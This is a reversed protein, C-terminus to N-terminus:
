IEQLQKKIAQLESLALAKYDIDKALQAIQAQLESFLENGININALKNAMQKCHEKIDSRTTKQLSQIFEQAEELFREASYDKLTGSGSPLPKDSYTMDPFQLANIIGRLISRLKNINIDDDSGGNQEVSERLTRILNGNLEAKFSRISKHGMDRISNEVMAVLDDLSSRVAGARVTTYTRTETRSSGWTWPKIWKSTSVECTETETGEADNTANRAKSFYQALENHLANELENIFDRRLDEFCEDIDSIANDKLRAIQKQQQKLQEVDTEEIEKIHDSVNQILDSAYKDINVAKQALFSEIKERAIEEKRMAVDALKSEITKINSILDLNAELSAQSSFNDPYSERLLKLAHAESEDLKSEDHTDGLNAKISFAIGASHLVREQKQTILSDYATGIEPRDAKLKQLTDSLHTGLSNKLNDLAKTMVGGARDRESGHLESDVKSAVVFLERIGNKQTIRDMLEMDESSMFQGAPSVIFIVDCEKLIKRTREERSVVPDNVGPTDVIEVNQLSELPLSIKVSKTLPMYRGDAGVYDELQSQLIELSDFTIEKAQLDATNIGCAQIRAYQDKSAALPSKSMEREVKQRAKSEIEAEPLLKSQLRSKANEIEAKTASELERDYQQAEKKINEVDQPTFFEIEAGYSQGWKLETLAATMPTAAKPLINKGDFVIANLLSSKGAKVRGVIGIKMLRETNSIKAIEAQLEAGTGLDLERKSDRASKELRDFNKAVISDISELKHIITQNTDM